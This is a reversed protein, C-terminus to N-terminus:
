SAHTPVSYSKESSVIQIKVEEPSDNLWLRVRELCKGLLNQGNGDKGPGWIPDNKLQVIPHEGTAKLMEGLKPNQSFKAYLAASMVHEKMADWEQSIVTFNPIEKGITFAQNPDLYKKESLKKRIAGCEKPQQHLPLKSIYLAWKCYQFYFEVNPFKLIKGEGGPLPDPMFILPEEGGITSHCNSFPLAFVFKGFTKEAEIQLFSPGYSNTSFGTLYSLEAQTYWGSPQANGTRDKFPIDVFVLSQPLRSQKLFTSSPRQPASQGKSELSQLYDMTVWRNGTYIEGWINEDGVEYRRGTHDYEETDGMGGAHHYAGGAHHYARKLQGILAAKSQVGIRGEEETDVKKCQLIGLFLLPIALGLGILGGGGINGLKSLNSLEGLQYGQNAMIALIGIAITTVAAIVLISGGLKMPVSWTSPTSSPQSETSLHFM